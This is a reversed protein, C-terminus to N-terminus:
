APRPIRDRRSAPLSRPGQLSADSDDHKLEGDLVANSMAAARLKANEESVALLDFAYKKGDCEYHFGFTKFPTDIM